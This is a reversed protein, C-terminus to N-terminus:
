RRSFASARRRTAISTWACCPATPRSTPPWTACSRCSAAQGAAEAGLYQARGPRHGAAHVPVAHAHHPRRCQHGAAVAPYLTGGPVKAVDHRLRAIIQDATAGQASRAAEPRDDSLRQQDAALRRGLHRLGAVDPDHEIVDTLAHQRRVMEQLLHGAACGVPGPHHRHGAAPLLGQTDARVAGRDAGHHRPLGGADRAPPAARLGPRPQLRRDPARLVREIFQYVAGHQAGHENRLFLACMTPSLTLAVFASVAITMTVMIAFERFLRGVIGGMLLLPIFVAVLSISISVITFGIEGAGKLTAQLPSLGAEIHRYINELMVIADDVVFGVAITLAM